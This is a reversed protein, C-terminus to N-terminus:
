ITNQLPEIHVKIQATTIPEDLKICIRTPLTRTRFDEEIKEQKLTFAQEGVEITIKVSKNNATIVLTNNDLTKIEAFTVLATAFSQPELFRVDDTVTLSGSDARSYSFTRILRELPKVDYASTIDMKLTDINEEFNAGLVQAHAQGGTRQLEGAVVPVPHGYSNLANSKYRDRSFTRRTYIESGPDALLLVGDLAVVYSGVDNHNHMEGNHGGKIAAALGYRATEGPRCILVQGQDFWTRIPLKAPVDNVAAQTASNPFSFLIAEPLAGGSSTMDTHAPGIPLALRQRVYFLMWTEPQADISCDAFAPSLGETMQITWGFQAAQRVHPLQLFDLKGNTAQYITETLALFRGFGYNWYGLGESCYGDDGFGNLFRQIHKEAGAVFLARDQRSELLALAGGTTQAQCVANWNSSTSKLWNAAPRKGEYMEQVPDLVRQRVNAILLTRTEPSLKDGLLWNITALNWAIGSSRLEVIHTKGNFNELAGDHAPLAWSKLSCRYRIAAEIDPLFRGQNELCEALTASHLRKRLAAEVNQYHTRNGNRSYELYLEDTLQPMPRAILKEAEAVVNKFAPHQVLREWTQRDGIPKGVGRPKEPLWAAIQEMRKADPMLEAQVLSSVWSLCIIGLSFLPLFYPKM